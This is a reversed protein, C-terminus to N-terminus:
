RSRKHAPIYKAEEAMQEPTYRLAKWHDLYHQPIGKLPNKDGGAPQGGRATEVHTDANKREYERTQKATVVKELPGYVARLALRQTRPDTTPIGTEDAIRHAEEAVRRFEKSTTDNLEPVKSLFQQVETSAAVRKQEQAQTQVIRQEMARSQQYAIQETMLAPTIRGADVLAQLEQSSWVKEQPTSQKEVKARLDAAERQAAEAIRRAEKMDRYVEDFRKGGPELPHPTEAPTEPEAVVAEPTEVVPEEVPETIVDDAV